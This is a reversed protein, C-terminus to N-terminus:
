KHRTPDIQMKERQTFICIAMLTLVPTQVQGTPLENPEIWKRLEVM